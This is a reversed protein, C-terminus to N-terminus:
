HVRTLNKIQEELIAVRSELSMPDVARELAQIIYANITLNRESAASAVLNYLNPSVRLGIRKEDKAEVM